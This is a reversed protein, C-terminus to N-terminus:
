DNQNINQRVFSKEHKSTVITAVAHFGKVFAESTWYWATGNEPFFPENKYLAALEQSTPLRWDSYGGWRLNTVYNLAENYNLCQGYHQSSDLLSWHKKTLTDKVINRYKDVLFRGSVGVRDGFEHSVRKLKQATVLNQTEATQRQDVKLNVFNRQRQNRNLNMKEITLKEYLERAASSYPGKNNKDLYTKVRRLKTDIGNRSATAYKHLNLWNKQDSVKAQLSDVADIIQTKIISKPHDALYDKLLNQRAIYDHGLKEARLKVEHFKKKETLEQKLLAIEKIRHNKDFVKVYNECFLICKEWQQSGDCVKAQSKIFTFYQEAMDMLLMEVDNRHSGNPFRDLYDQYADFRQGMDMKENKLLKQYYSNDLLDNIGAIAVEIEQTHRSDLHKSLFRNYIDLAKSEYSEDISLKGVRLIVQEFDQKEIEKRVEKIKAEIEAIYKEPNYEDVFAILRKEKVIPDIESEVTDMMEQYANQLQIKQFFSAGLVGGIALLPLTIALGILFVALKNKKKPVVPAPPPVREFPGKSPGAIPIGVSVSESKTKKGKGKGEKKELSPPPPPSAETETQAFAEDKIKLSEMLVHMLPQQIDDEKPSEFNEIEIVVTDWSIILYAAERGTLDETEAGVLKGDELYLYGNRGKSTIKLKFTSGEMESMQLFSPLGIGHIAGGVGLNMQDMASKSLYKKVVTALQTSAGETMGNASFGLHIEIKDSSKQWPFLAGYFEGTNLRKIYLAQESKIGNLQKVSPSLRLKLPLGKGVPKIPLGFFEKFLSELNEIKEEKATAQYLSRSWEYFRKEVKELSDLKKALTLFGGLITANDKIEKIEPSNLTLHENILKDLM